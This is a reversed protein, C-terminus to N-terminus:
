GVKIVGKKRLASRGSPGQRTGPGRGAHGGGGGPDGDPEHGPLESTNGSMRRESYAFPILDANLVNPKEDGAHAWVWAMLRDFQEGDEPRAPFVYSQGAAGRSALGFARLM